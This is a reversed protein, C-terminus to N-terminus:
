LQFEALGHRVLWQRGHGTPVTVDGQKHPRLGSIAAATHNVFQRPWRDRRFQPELRTGIGSENENRSAATQNPGGVLRSVGPPTWRSHRPWCADSDNRTCGDRQGNRTPTSADDSSCRISDHSTAGPEQLDKFDEIHTSGFQVSRTSDRSRSRGRGFGRRGDVVAGV